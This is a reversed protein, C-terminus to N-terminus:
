KFESRTDELLQEFDQLSRMGQMFFGPESEPGLSFTSPLSSLGLAYGIEGSLDYYVPFTFKNESIYADASERSERGGTANLAIFVFDEEDKHREYFDQLDPMEAKCPPCWSAWYNVIVYSGKFDGLRKEEGNQDTLRLKAMMEAAEQAESSADDGGAESAEGADPATKDSDEETKEQEAFTEAGLDARNAPDANLKKALLFLLVAAAILLIIILVNRQKKEM